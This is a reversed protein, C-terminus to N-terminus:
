DSRRPRALTRNIAQLSSREFSSVLADFRRGNAIWRRLLKAQAASIRKTVTKGGAKRTWQYYPGHLRPPKAQCRCGPKGCPMFRRLVTGRCFCGVASLRDRVEEFKPEETRRMRCM